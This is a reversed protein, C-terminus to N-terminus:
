IRHGNGAKLCCWRSFRAAVFNIVLAGAFCPGSVSADQQAPKVIVPFRLGRAAAAARTGDTLRAARPARIDLRELLRLQEWKSTELAFAVSGNVVPIGRRELFPLFARAFGIAPAHARLYSSPSVKNVALSWRPAPGDADFIADPAFCREYPLGERELAAFLPALWAENEYIVGIPRM